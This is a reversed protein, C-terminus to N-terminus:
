APAHDKSSREAEMALYVRKAVDSVFENDRDYCMIEAAGAEIMEPTIMVEGDQRETHAEPKSM